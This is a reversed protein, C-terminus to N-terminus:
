LPGQDRNQLFFILRIWSRKNKTSDTNYSKTKKTSNHGIKDGQKKITGYNLFGDVIITMTKYYATLSSRMNQM